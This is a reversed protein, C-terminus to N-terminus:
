DFDSMILLCWDGDENVEFRNGNEDTYKELQDEVDIGNIIKEDYIGNKIDNM